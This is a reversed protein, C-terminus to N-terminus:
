RALADEYAARARKYDAKGNAARPVDTLWALDRPVKYDALEARVAALVDAAPVTTGAARSAVAVVREGFREDPVGLVLCDDVGAHRKLAEEVEEAYVKEGGTNICQSGRGLLVISGDAAVTAHDGPISVREGDRTPFTAASKAADNHYGDPVSGRIVVVGVDGSGPAVRTGDDRVVSVNPAATFRGTPAIRGRRSISMGMMGESAAIYDLILASTAFELLAAKVEHSFMAGASMVLQLQSLDRAQPADQLARLLPRAFADGVITLSQVHEREVLTWVEDADLGRASALVAKGGFTFQPVLGIGLGTGHMLPCAPLAVIQRGDDALRRAAPAIEDPATLPALGVFPPVATM